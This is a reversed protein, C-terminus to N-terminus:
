KTIKTPHSSTVNLCCIMYLTKNHPTLFLSQIEGIAIAMYLHYYVITNVLNKVWHQWVKISYLPWDVHQCTPRVDSRMLIRRKIPIISCPPLQPRIQMIKQLWKQHHNNPRTRKHQTSSPSDLIVPDAAPCVPRCHSFFFFLFVLFMM